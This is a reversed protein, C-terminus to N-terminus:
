PQVGDYAAGARGGGNGGRREESSWVRAGVAVADAAPLVGTAVAVAGVLLLGAGVIALRVPHAYPTARRYCAGRWLSPILVGTMSIPLACTQLGTVHFGRIGDEAQV